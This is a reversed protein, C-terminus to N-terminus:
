VKYLDVHHDQMISWAAPDERGLKEFNGKSHSPHWPVDCDFVQSTHVSWSGIGCNTNYEYLKNVRKSLQLMWSTEQHMISPFTQLCAVLLHLGPDLVRSRSHIGLQVLPAAPLLFSVRELLLPSFWRIAVMGFTGCIIIAFVCIALTDQAYVHYDNWM